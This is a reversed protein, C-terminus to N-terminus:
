CPRFWRVRGPYRWLFTALRLESQQRRLVHPDLLIRLRRLTESVAALAVEREPCTLGTRRDEGRGADDEFLCGWFQANGTLDNVCKNTAANVTAQTPNM